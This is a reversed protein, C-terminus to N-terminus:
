KAAAKFQHNAVIQQYTPQLIDAVIRTWQYEDIAQRGNSFKSRLESSKALTIMANALAEPTDDVLLGDVGDKIYAQNGKTATAITPLGSALSEMTKLVPAKDFWPVIPVYGLGIDAAQMVSPMDAYPVLGLFHVRSALNLSNTIHQLRPVDMGEGVIILHSNHADQIVQQFAQIVRHLQRVPKITGSYIFVIEDSEIGLKQRMAPNKGPRFHDFDVGIPLEVFRGNDSGFIDEAVEQAHVLTTAFSRAELRIRYNSITSRWGKHLPPSQIELVWSCTQDRNYVRPLLSAGPLNRINIVDWDHQRDVSHQADTLFQLFSLQFSTHTESRDAAIREVMVGGVQESQPEDERGTVIAHVEHGLKALGQTYEFFPVEGSYFHPCIYCIKV